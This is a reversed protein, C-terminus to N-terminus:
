VPSVGDQDIQICSTVEMGTLLDHDVLKPRALISVDPLWAVANPMEFCNKRWM